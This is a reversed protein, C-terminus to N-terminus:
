QLLTFFCMGSYRKMYAISSSIAATAFVSVFSQMSHQYPLRLASASIDASICVTSTPLFLVALTM